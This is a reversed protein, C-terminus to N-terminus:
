TQKILIKDSQYIDSIISGISGDLVPTFIRNGEKDTYRGSLLMIEEKFENIREASLLVKNKEWDYTEIVIDAAGGKKKYAGYSGADIEAWSLGQKPRIKFFTRDIEKNDFTITKGEPLRAIDGILTGKYPFLVTLDFDFSKPFKSRYKKIFDYTKKFTQETEGPLGIIFFAKVKIGTQITKEVFAHMQEVKTGKYITDLIEQSASEAGFGIEVCGSEYLLAALEPHNAMIKVHGFCRFVLSNEEHFYKLIETYPKIKGPSMAFLDDFIMIGKIGQEVISRIESEFHEQAFWRGKTRRHECFACGMPCGRSNVLTTAKVGDLNYNYKDIYTKERYPIPYSNMEDETLYDRFILQESSSKTSLRSSLNDVNGLLLDEFIREGDGTVIIDFGEKRCEDLYYSAHPGGLLITIQPYRAKLARCIQYAQSGQPTMCSIGVIDLGYYLDVNNIDFEDTFFIDFEALTEQTLKNEENNIYKARMGIKTAISVLYLIGLYPFVYQNDLFPSDLTTLLMKKYKLGTGIKKLIAYTNNKETLM